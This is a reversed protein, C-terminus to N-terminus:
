SRTALEQSHRRLHRVLELWPYSEGCFGCLVSSVALRQWYNMLDSRLNGRTTCHKSEIHQLLHDKRFFSRGRIGIPKALCLDVQHENLHEKSPSDEDCFVCKGNAIASNDPMCHWTRPGHTLAHKQLDSISSYCKNCQGSSFPCKFSPMDLDAIIHLPPASSLSQLHAFDM